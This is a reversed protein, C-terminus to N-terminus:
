IDAESGNVDNDTSDSSANEDSQINTESDTGSESDTDSKNESDNADGSDNGTDSGHDSEADSNIEDAENPVSEYVDDFEPKLKTFISVLHSFSNKLFSRAAVKSSGSIKQLLQIDQDTMGSMDMGSLVLKVSQQLKPIDSLIEDYKQSVFLDKVEIMDHILDETAVSHKDQIDDNLEDLKDELASLRQSANKNQDKIVILEASNDKPLTPTKTDGHDTKHKIHEVDNCQLLM